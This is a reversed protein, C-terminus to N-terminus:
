RRVAVRKLTIKGRVGASNAQLGNTASGHCGFRGWDGETRWWEGGNISNVLPSNACGSVPKNGVFRGFLNTAVTLLDFQDVRPQGLRLSWGVYKNLMMDTEVVKSSKVYRRGAKCRRVKKGGVTVTRCTKARRGYRNRVFETVRAVEDSGLVDTFGVANVGDRRGVTRRTTGDTSVGWRAAAAVLIEQLQARSVGPREIGTSLVFQAPGGSKVGHGIEGSVAAASLSAGGYPITTVLKYAPWQYVWVCFNFGNEAGTFFGSREGVTGAPVLGQPSWAYWGNPASSVNSPGCSQGAAVTTVVPLFVCSETSGCDDHTVSFSAEYSGYGLAKVDSVSATDASATATFAFFILLLACAASFTATLAAALGASHGASNNTSSRRRGIIGGM